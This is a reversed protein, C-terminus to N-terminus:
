PMTRQYFVTAIIDFDHFLILGLSSQLSHRDTCPFKRLARFPLIKISKSCILIFSRIQIQIPYPEPDFLSRSRVPKKIQHTDPDSLSRIHSPDPNSLSRSRILFQILHSMPDSLSGSRFHNKYPYTNSLSRFRILVQIQYPNPNSLYTSPRLFQIQYSDPESTSRSRFHIQIM